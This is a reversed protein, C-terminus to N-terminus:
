KSRHYQFQVSIEDGEDAEIGDFMAAMGAAVRQGIDPPCGLLDNVVAFTLPFAYQRILDAAGTRCFTNILPAAIKEVTARLAYLHYPKRSVSLFMM